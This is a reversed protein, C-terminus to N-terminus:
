MKTQEPTYKSKDLVFKNQEFDYKGWIPITKNKLQKKGLQFINRALQNFLDPNIQNAYEFDKKPLLLRTKNEPDTNDGFVIYTKIVSPPYFKFWNHVQNQVASNYIFKDHQWGLKIIDHIKSLRDTMDDMQYIFHAQVLDDKVQKSAQTKVFNSIEQQIFQYIQQKKSIINDAISIPMVNTNKPIVENWIGLAGYADQYLIIANFGLDQQMEPMTRQNQNYQKLLLYLLIFQQLDIFNENTIVGSFAIEENDTSENLKTAQGVVSTLYYGAVYDIEKFVKQAQKQNM